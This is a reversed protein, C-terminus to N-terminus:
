DADADAAKDREDALRLLSKEHVPIDGAIQEALARIGAIADFVVTGWTADPNIVPQQLLLQEIREGISQIRSM